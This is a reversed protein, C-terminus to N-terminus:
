RVVPIDQPPPITTTIATHLIWIVVVVLAFYALNRVFTASFEASRKQAEKNREYAINRKNDIWAQPPTEEPTTPKPQQKEVTSGVISPLNPKNPETAVESAQKQLQVVKQEVENLRSDHAGLLGALKEFEDPGRMESLIRAILNPSAETLEAVDRITSVPTKFMEETAALRELLEFIEDDQIPVALLSENTTLQYPDNSV